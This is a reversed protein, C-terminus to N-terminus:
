DIKSNSVINKLMANKIKSTFSEHLGCDDVVPNDWHEVLMENFSIMNDLEGWQESSILEFIYAIRNVFSKNLEKMDDDSLGKEIQIREIPGDRFAFLAVVKSFTNINNPNLVVDKMKLNYEGIFDKVYNSHEIGLLISRLEEIWELERDFLNVLLLDDHQEEIILTYIERYLVKDINLHGVQKKRTLLEEYVSM